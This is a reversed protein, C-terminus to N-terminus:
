AWPGSGNFEKLFYKLADAIIQFLGLPGVVNPGRRLQVAAWIRRDAWVAFSIIILLPIVLALIKISIILVETSYMKLLDSSM